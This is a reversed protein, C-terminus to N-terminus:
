ISFYPNFYYFYKLVATHSVQALKKSNKTLRKFLQIPNKLSLDLMSNHRNKEQTNLKQMCDNILVAPQLVQESSFKARCEEANALQVYKQDTENVGITRHALNTYLNKRQQEKSNEEGHSVPKKHKSKLSLKNFLKEYVTQRKKAVNEHSDKSPQQNISNGLRLNRTTDM